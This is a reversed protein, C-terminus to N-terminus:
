AEGREAAANLEAATAYQRGVLHRDDGPRAGVLRGRATLRVGQTRGSVMLDRVLQKAEPTAGVLVADMEDVVLTVQPHPGDASSTRQAVLDRAAALLALTGTHTQDTHSM